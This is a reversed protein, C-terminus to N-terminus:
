SGWFERAQSLLKGLKAPDAGAAAESQLRQEVFGLVREAVKEPSYDAQKGSLAGPQLGLKDALRNALTAQADASATRAAQAQGLQAFRSASPNLSGLTNM